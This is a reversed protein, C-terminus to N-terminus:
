GAFVTPSGSAVFTCGALSDGIRAMPLGNVFVTASGKSIPATHPSCPPPVPQGKPKPRLHPTSIDGLRAAPKLNVFVTPSGKAIVFPSCHPVGRDGLRAVPRM